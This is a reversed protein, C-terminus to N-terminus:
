RPFFHSSLDHCASSIPTSGLIECMEAVDPSRRPESIQFGVGFRGHSSRCQPLVGGTPADIPAFSGAFEVLCLELHFVDGPVNLPLFPMIIVDGRDHVCVKLLHSRIVVKGLVGDSLGDGFVKWEWERLFRVVLPLLAGLSVDM